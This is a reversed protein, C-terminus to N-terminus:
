DTQDGRYISDFRALPPVTVLALFAVMAALLFTTEVEVWLLLVGILTPALFKGLNRFAGSFAVFTARLERSVVGAIYANLVVGYVADSAGFLIAALILGITTELRAFGVLSLGVGVLSVAVWRSPPAVVLLWRASAALLAGVLSALGILLGAFGVTHGGSGVVLVSLYTLPVFKLLFRLFGSFVLSQIAPLKLNEWHAKVNIKKASRHRTASDDLAIWGFVAVPLASAQLLYPMYWAVAALIGGIAPFITDGIQLSLSRKGQTEVLAAGSVLDGAITITLPLVSSFAIGQVVRVALVAAFSSSVLPMVLGCVGFVALSASYVIRRGYADALLGMPLALFVGPLLYATTILALSSDTLDLATQLEPLGPTIAQIGSISVFAGLYVLWLRPDRRTGKRNEKSDDAAGAAQDM